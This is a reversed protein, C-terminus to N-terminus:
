TEAQALRPWSSPDVLASDIPEVKRIFDEVDSRIQKRFARANLRLQDLTEVGLVVASAPLCRAYALWFDAPRMDLEDALESIQTLVARAPRLHRPLADPDLFAVGQLFASRVFVSKQKEAAREFFGARRLRQDLLNEAVQTVEIDEHELSAMAEEPTAASVGLAGILGREQLRKLEAWLRGGCCTLHDYRHLLLADLRNRDLARLSAFVSKRTREVAEAEGLGSEWVHPDLKTVIHFELGTKTLARGIAAESSGYARATDLTRIGLKRAARLIAEIEAPGPKGSRNAIGYQMGWQATGIALNLDGSDM